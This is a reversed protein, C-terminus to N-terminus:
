ALGLTQDERDPIVKLFTNLQLHLWSKPYGTLFNM